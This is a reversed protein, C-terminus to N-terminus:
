AEKIARISKARKICGRWWARVDGTKYGAVRRDITYSCRKRLEVAPTVPHTCVNGAEDVSGISYGNADRILVSASGTDTAWKRFTKVRRKAESKPERMRM